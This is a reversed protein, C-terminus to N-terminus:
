RDMGPTLDRPCGLETGSGDPSSLRRVSPATGDRNRHVVNVLWGGALPAVRACVLASGHGLLDAALEDVALILRDDAIRPAPQRDGALHACVRLEARVAPLEAVSSIEWEWAEGETVPPRVIRGSITTTWAFTEADATSWARDTGM